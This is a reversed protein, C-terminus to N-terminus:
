IVARGVVKVESLSLVKGIRTKTVKVTHGEVEVPLVLDLVPGQDHYFFFSSVILVGDFIDVRIEDLKKGEPHCLPGDCAFIKIQAITFRGKLFVEWWHAVHDATSEYTGYPNTTVFSTDANGDIPGQVSGRDSVYLSLGIGSLAINTNNKDM